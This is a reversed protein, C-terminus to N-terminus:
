WWYAMIFNNWWTFVVYKKKKIM